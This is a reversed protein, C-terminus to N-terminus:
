RGKNNKAMISAQPLACPPSAATPSYYVTADNSDESESMEFMQPSGASCSSIYGDTESDSSSLREARRRMVEEMAPTFQTPIEEGVPSRSGHCNSYLTLIWNGYPLWHHSYLAATVFTSLHPLNHMDSDFHKIIHIKSFSVPNSSYNNPNQLM